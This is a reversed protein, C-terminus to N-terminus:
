MDLLLGRSESSKRAKSKQNVLFVCFHLRPIFVVPVVPFGAYTKVHFTHCVMEILSIIM